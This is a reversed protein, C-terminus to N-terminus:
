AAAGFERFSLPRRGLLAAFGGADAISGQRLMRLSDRDFLCGPVRAGCAALGDAWRGPLTWVRAPSAIGQQRRLQRLYDALSAQEAGVFDVVGCVDNEALKRLGEAAEDAAVPQVRYEGGEPLPWVPLRSLALLLRSSAGGAGHVLSPRAVAVDLGSALLAADGRGKSALFLTDAAEAAGLASLQVWRRIGRERALRALHLPGLHHAAELEGPRRERLLGAANIVADVGDLWGAWGREPRTLDVEARCPSRPQHGMGRLGAAVHRGIFGSAGLLLVRM